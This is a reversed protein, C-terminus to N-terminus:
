TANPKDEAAIALSSASRFCLVKARAIAGSGVKMRELQSSNLVSHPM